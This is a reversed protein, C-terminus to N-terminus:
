GFSPASITVKYTGPQLDSLLYAGREDTVVTKVTSTGQNVAEIKAGPIAAGSTDTINGTLSGYLTQAKVGSTTLIALAAATAIFAAVRGFLFPSRLLRPQLMVSREEVKRPYVRFQNSM